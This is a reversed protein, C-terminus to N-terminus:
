HMLTEVTLDVPPDARFHYGVLRSNEKECELYGWIAGIANCKAGRQGCPNGNLVRRCRTIHTLM